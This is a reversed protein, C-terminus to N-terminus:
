EFSCLSRGSNSQNSKKLEVKAINRIMMQKRRTLAVKIGENIEKKHQNIHKIERWIAINQSGRM